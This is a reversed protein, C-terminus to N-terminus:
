PSVRLTLQSTSISVAPEIRHGVVTHPWFDVLSKSYDIYGLTRIQVYDIRHGVTKHSSTLAPKTLLIYEHTRWTPRRGCMKRWRLRTARNLRMGTTITIRSHNRVTWLLEFRELYWQEILTADADVFISWDFFDSVYIERNATTQLVNIGWCDSTPPLQRCKGQCLITFRMATFRRMGKSKRRWKPHFSRAEM